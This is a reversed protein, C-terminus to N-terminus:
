DHAIFKVEIEYPRNGEHPGFGIRKLQKLYNFLERNFEMNQSLKKVKYEFNGSPYIKLIVDIEEGAFNAQAPWNMLAKQVKALYKQNIGKANSAKKISDNKSNKKNNLSGFLKKTDVKKSPKKSNQNNNKNQFSDNKNKNKPKTKSSKERKKKLKEFKKKIDIKESPKKIKPPKLTKPKLTKKKQHEPQKKHKPKHVIKKTPKKKMHKQKLKKIKPPTKISSQALHPRSLTKRPSSSALRVEIATGNKEVFNVPKKKENSHYGFYYFFGFLSLLYVGVSSITAILKYKNM